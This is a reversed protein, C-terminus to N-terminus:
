QPLDGPTYRLICACLLVLQSFRLKGYVEFRFITLRDTDKISDSLDSLVFTCRQLNFLHAFCASPAARLCAFPFRFLKPCRLPAFVM